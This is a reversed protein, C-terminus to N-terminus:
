RAFRLSTEQRHSLFLNEVEIKKKLGYHTLARSTCRANYSIHMEHLM